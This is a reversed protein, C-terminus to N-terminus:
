LDAVASKFEEAKKQLNKLAEKLAKRPEIGKTQLLFQPIGILPHDVRYAIIDVGKVKLLENKLANCFTHTERKLQFVFKTNTEELVTLDM